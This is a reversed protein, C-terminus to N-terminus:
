DDDHLVAAGSLEALQQRARVLREDVENAMEQLLDRGEVHAEQVEDYLQALSGETCSALEAALTALSAEVAAVARIVRVLERGPATM